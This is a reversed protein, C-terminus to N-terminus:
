LGLLQKKKADFEEQTIAGCDLLQKFKLIEDATSPKPSSDMTDTTSAKEYKEIESSFAEVFLNINKTQQRGAMLTMTKTTSNVTVKTIGRITEGITVTVTDGWTTSTLGPPVDAQLMWTTENATKMKFKKTNAIAEKAAQFCDIRSYQMELVVEQNSYGM